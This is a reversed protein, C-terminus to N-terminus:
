AAVQNVAPLELYSNMGQMFEAWGCRTNMDGIWHIAGLRNNRWDTCLVGVSHRGTEDQVGYEVILHPVISKVSDVISICLYNCEDAYEIYNHLKAPVLRTLVLKLLDKKYSDVSYFLDDKAALM